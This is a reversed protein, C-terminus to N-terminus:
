SDEENSDAHITEVMAHVLIKQIEEPSLTAIYSIIEFIRGNDEQFKMVAENIVPLTTSAIKTMERKALKKNRRYELYERIKKM